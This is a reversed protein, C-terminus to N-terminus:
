RRTRAAPATTRGRRARPPAGADQLDGYLFHRVVPTIATVVDQTALGALPEVGVIRRAMLLGVVQSGVLSVRREADEGELLAAVPALMRSVILGRALVAADEDSAASRVIGAMVRGTEDSDVLGVLFAAIAAAPDAADRLIPGISTAPDVPPEVVELFLRQKTGFYHTVLRSDVGAREAIGRVTTRDYGGEAFASRAADLIAARTGPSGPRRGPRSRGTM